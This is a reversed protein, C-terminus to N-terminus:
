FCSLKCLMDCQRELHRQAIVERFTSDANRVQLGGAHYKKINEDIHRIMSRLKFVSPSSSPIEIADVVPVILRFVSLPNPNM